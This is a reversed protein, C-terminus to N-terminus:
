CQSQAPRAPFVAQLPIPSCLHLMVQVQVGTVLGANNITATLPDSRSWGPSLTTTSGACVVASGSNSNITYSQGVIQFTSFNVCAGTNVPITITVNGPHLVQDPQIIAIAAHFYDRAEPTPHLCFPPNM